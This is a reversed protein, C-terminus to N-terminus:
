FAKPKHLFIHYVNQHLFLNSIKSNFNHFQAARSIAAVALGVICGFKFYKLYFVLKM